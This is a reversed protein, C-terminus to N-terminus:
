VAYRTILHEIYAVYDDAIQQNTISLHNEANFTANRSFNFSGTTVTNDVVVVKNHMYDHISTPSYPTSAKSSFGETVQHFLAVRAGGHPNQAIQRLASDMQTRDYIGKIQVGGDIADQMAAMITASTIVMCSVYIRSQAHRIQDAITSDIQQGQGPSFNVELQVQLPGDDGVVLFGNDNLGTGNINGHQFMEEFDNAYYGALQGSQVMVVNNEQMTWANDSYNLSGMWVTGDNTFADRVIYKDHMLHQGAHVAKTDIGTVGNLASLFQANGNPAPDAAQTNFTTQDDDTHGSDYAIKIHVGRAAANRLSDLVLASAHPDNLRFDYAAIRVSKTALNIFTAFRNAVALLQAPDDSQELFFHQVVSSPQNDM